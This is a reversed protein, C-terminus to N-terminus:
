AAKRYVVLPTLYGSLMRHAFTRWCTYLSYNGNVSNKDWGMEKKLVLFRVVGTM